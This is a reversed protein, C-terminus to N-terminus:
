CIACNDFYKEATTGTGIAYFSCRGHNSRRLFVTLDCNPLYLRYGKSDRELTGKLVAFEDVYIERRALAQRVRSNTRVTISTEKNM